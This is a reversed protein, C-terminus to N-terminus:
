EEGRRITRLKRLLDVPVSVARLHEPGVPRGDLGWSGQDSKTQGSEVRELLDMIPQLAEDIKLAHTKLDHALTWTEQIKKGLREGNYEGQIPAEHLAMEAAETNLDRHAELSDGIAKGQKALTREAGYLDHIHLTPLDVTHRANGKPHRVLQAYTKTTETM